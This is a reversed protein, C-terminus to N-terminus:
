GPVHVGNRLAPAAAIEAGPVRYGVVYRRSPGMPSPCITTARLPEFPLACIDRLELHALVSSLAWFSTSSVTVGIFLWGLPLRAISRKAAFSAAYHRIFM